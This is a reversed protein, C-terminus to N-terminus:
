EKNRFYKVIADYNDKIDKYSGKIQKRVNEVQTSVSKGTVCWRAFHECNNTVINYGKEGLRSRARQVIERESYAPKADLAIQLDRGRLFGDLTTEHIVGNEFSIDPGEYPAFHVVKNDGTYVGYHKYANFGVFYNEVFILSGTTLRIKIAKPRDNVMATENNQKKTLRATLRQKLGEITKTQQVKHSSINTTTKKFVNTYTELKFADNVDRIGVFWFMLFVIFTLFAGVIIMKKM